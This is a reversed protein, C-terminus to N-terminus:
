QEQLLLEDSYTRISGFFLLKQVSFMTVSNNNRYCFHIQSFHQKIVVGIRIMEGGKTIQTM